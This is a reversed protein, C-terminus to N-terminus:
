PGIIFSYSSKSWRRVVHRLGIVDRYLHLNTSAILFPLVSSTTLREWLDSDRLEECVWDTWGASIDIPCLFMIPAPPFDGRWLCVWNVSNPLIKEGEEPSLRDNILGGFAELEHVTADRLFPRSTSGPKSLARIAM